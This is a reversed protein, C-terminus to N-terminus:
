NKARRSITRDAKLAQSGEGHDLPALHGQAVPRHLDTADEVDVALFGGEGDVGVADSRKVHGAIGECFGLRVPGGLHDQAARDLGEFPPGFRECRLGV